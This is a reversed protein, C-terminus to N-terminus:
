GADAGEAAGDAPFVMLVERAHKLNALPRLRIDAYRGGRGLEVEIVTAAPYGAPFRGGLGSSVLLDGVEIDADKPVYALALEGTSGDGVAISRLGNRPLMVPLAHSADTILVATSSFPGVSDVQGLVGNADIVSQGRRIGHQAGKDLTLRRSVSGNDTAGLVGAVMVRDQIRASSELLDRLRRNEREIEQTRELRSGLVLLQRRLAETERILSRQASLWVAADRPVEVFLTDVALRLPYVVM